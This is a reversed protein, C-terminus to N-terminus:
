CGCGGVFAAGWGGGAGLLEAPGVTWGWGRAEELRESAILRSAESGSKARERRERPGTCGLGVREGEEEKPWGVEVDGTTGSGRFFGAM